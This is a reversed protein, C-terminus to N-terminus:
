MFIYTHMYLNTYVHTHVFTAGSIERTSGANIANMHTHTHTHAYIWIHKVLNIYM